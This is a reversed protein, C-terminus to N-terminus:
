SGSVHNIEGLWRKAEEMDHFFRVNAKGDSVDFSKQAALQAFISPSFVWAFDRLGAEIMMPFWVKGAWDSAESWNGLVERNDNLVKKLGSSGLVEIMRLGGNQVSEFDQYGTWNVEMWGKQDNCTIALYEDSYTLGNAVQNKIATEGLPIRINVTTGVGLESEIWFTGQHAKIIESSIFLGLGLGGFREAANDARYYRDFLKELEQSAIGIGHDEVSIIVGEQEVRFSVHVTDALPSYKVANSLLNGIVQELRFRDAHIYINESEKLIIQHTAVSLQLNDCCERLLENLIFDTKNFQLKGANIRSVDLLDNILRELKTTAMDVKQLYSKAKDLDKARALLQNFAKISTLPTKLEHSAVSIFEDRQEQGKKQLDINTNSGIWLTVKGNELIPVARGLHWLYGGDAMKLRFQVNYESGSRLSLKWARDCEEIDDPHIFHQWGLGFPSDPNLAFDRIVVGNVYDINGDASATWVQQPITDLLSTLHLREKRSKTIDRFIVLLRSEAAKDFIEPIVQFSYYSLNNQEGVELEGAINKRGALAQELENRIRKSFTRADIDAFQPLERIDRNAYVCDLNEDFRMIIDPLNEALTKYETESAKLERFISAMPKEFAMQVNAKYILFFSILKGYHGFENLTDTNSAYTAFCCESLVAFIISGALLQYTKRDFNARRGYLLLLSILLLLIICYESVVKFFTQGKGAVFCVPFVKWVLISAAIALSVVFYFLFLLETNIKRKRGIMLFGGFFILAEMGRTAVWFQNAPYGPVPIMNMGNYSLTHLLDLAGIFLYSIGVMHLYKNDQMKRSNWAVIFVAFAIVISFLEVLTHFLM